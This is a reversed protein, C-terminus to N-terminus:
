TRLGAGPLVRHSETGHATAAVGGADDARAALRPDRLHPRCASRWATCCSCRRRTGRSAQRALRGAGAAGAHATASAGAAAARDAPPRCRIEGRARARPEDSSPSAEGRATAARADGRVLIVGALVASATYRSLALGGADRPKDLLDGIMAGLPRTLIFAAWFLLTRSTKTWLYAAGVLALGAGFVLAGNEYGLGLGTEDDAIWDGLATGLTQSFMITAWYFGEAKRTSISSIAVSGCVHHWLAITALLLALLISAGGIYGIGLSRDLFDALTTGATTTAVIM